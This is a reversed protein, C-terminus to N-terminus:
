HAAARLAASVATQLGSQVQQSVAQQQLQPLNPIVFNLTTDQTINRQTATNVV